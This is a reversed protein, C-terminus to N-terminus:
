IANYFQHTQRRAEAGDDETLEDLTFAPANKLQAETLGILYGQRGPDYDLLMWPVPHYRQVASGFALVAFALRESLKDLMVDQVHGLKDGTASYVPTGVVKSTLIVSTHGSPTPV